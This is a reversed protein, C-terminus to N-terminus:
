FNAYFNKTNLIIHQCSGTVVVVVRLWSIWATLLTLKEKKIGEKM